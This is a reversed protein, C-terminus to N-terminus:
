RRPGEGSTSLGLFAPINVLFLRRWDVIGILLATAFPVWWGVPRRSWLLVLLPVFATLQILMSATVNGTLYPWLLLAAAIPLWAPVLSSATLGVLLGIGVATDAKLDWDALKGSSGSRRALRGDALDTLWAVSVLIGTITLDGSWAVPVVAVALLLRCITMGDAAVTMSNRGLLSHRERRSVVGECGHRGPSTPAPNIVKRCLDIVTLTAALRHFSTDSAWSSAGPHRGPGSVSM